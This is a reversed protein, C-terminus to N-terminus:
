QMSLDATSGSVESQNDITRADEKAKLNFRHTAIVEKLQNFAAPFKAFQQNNDKWFKLAEADTKTKHADAILSTMDIEPKAEEISGMNRVQQRQQDDDLEDPTYVGLIVDPVYLRAWRKVALYALQQKPDSAWLPSNRVSAQVLQLDLVRPEIEGKITSWVRVGLGIEDELTSNPVRFEYAKKGDKEPMKIVKTKGVIKTWDGYWDYSFRDNTVGSSQIVANVLQGEYGLIGNVLHTKQAVAFPNMKWIISQMIIAMCDGVNGKLHAPVTSQGKAMIEAMRYMSDMSASDLILAGSSSPVLNLDTASSTAEAIENM